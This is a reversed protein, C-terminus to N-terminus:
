GIKRMYEKIEIRQYLEIKFKLFNIKTGHPREKGTLEPIYFVCICMETSFIVSELRNIYLDKKSLSKALMNLKWSPRSRM